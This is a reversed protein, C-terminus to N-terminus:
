YTKSDAEEVIVPLSKDEFRDLVGSEMVRRRGERADEVSKFEVLIYVEGPSDANRFIRHTKAQERARPQDQDFQGKWMEYNGVNLRTLFYAMPRFEM